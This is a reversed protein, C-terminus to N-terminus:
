VGTEGALPLGGRWQSVAAVACRRQAALDSAAGHGPGSAQALAVGSSGAMSQLCLEFALRGHGAAVCCPQHNKCAAGICCCGSPAAVMGAFGIGLGLGTRRGVLTPDFGPEHHLPKVDCAPM